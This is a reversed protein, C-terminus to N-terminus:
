RKELTYRCYPVARGRRIWHGSSAHQKVDLSREVAHQRFLDKLNDTEPRNREIRRRLRRHERLLEMETMREPAIM